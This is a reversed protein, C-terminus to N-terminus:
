QLPQKPWVTINFILGDDRVKMSNSRDMIRLFQVSILLRGNAFAPFRVLFIARPDIRRVRAFFGFGLLGPLGGLLLFAPLVGGNLIIKLRGLLIPVLTITPITPKPPLPVGTGSNISCPPVARRRTNSFLFCCGRVLFPRNPFFRNRGTVFVTRYSCLGNM